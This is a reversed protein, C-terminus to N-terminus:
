IFIYISFRKSDEGVRYVSRLTEKIHARIQAKKRGYKAWVRNKPADIDRPHVAFVAVGVSNSPNV